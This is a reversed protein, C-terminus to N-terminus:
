LEVKAMKPQSSPSLSATLPNPAAAEPPFKSVPIRPHTCARPLFPAPTM